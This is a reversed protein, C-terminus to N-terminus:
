KVFDLETQIFITIRLVMPLCHADSRPTSGPEKRTQRTRVLQIDGIESDRNFESATYDSDGRKMAHLDRSYMGNGVGSHPSMNSYGM